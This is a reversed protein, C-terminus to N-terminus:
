LIIQSKIWIIEVNETVIRIWKQNRKYFISKYKWLLLVITYKGHSVYSKSELPYLYSYSYHVDNQKTEYYRPHIITYM